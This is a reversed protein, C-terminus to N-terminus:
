FGRMRASVVSFSRFTFISCARGTDLTSFTTNGMRTAVKTMRSMGEVAGRM